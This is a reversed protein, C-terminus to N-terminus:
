QGKEPLQTFPGIVNNADHSIRSQYGHVLAREWETVWMEQEEQLAGVGDLATQAIDFVLNNALHLNEQTVVKPNDSRAARSFTLIDSISSM